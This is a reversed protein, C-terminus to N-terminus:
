ANEPGVLKASLRKAAQEGVALEEWTAIALYRQGRHSRLVGVEPLAQDPIVSAQSAEPTPPVFRGSPKTARIAQPTSPRFEFREASQKELSAGEARLRIAVLVRDLPGPALEARRRTAHGEQQGLRPEPRLAPRM